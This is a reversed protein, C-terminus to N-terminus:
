NQCAFRYNASPHNFLKGFDSGRSCVMMMYDWNINKYPYGDRWGLEFQSPLPRGDAFRWSGTGEKTIGIFFNSETMNNTECYKRRESTTAIGNMLLDSGHDRCFERAAHWKSSRMKCSFVDFSPQLVGGRCKRLTDGEPEYFFPVCSFEVATNHAVRVSSINTTARDIVPLECSFAEEIVGSLHSIESAQGRVVGSLNRITEEQRAIVGNQSEIKGGMVAIEARHEDLVDSNRSIDASNRSVAEGHDTGKAGTSGRDGKEGRPGSKGRRIVDRAAPPSLPQGHDCTTTCVQCSAPKLLYILFFILLKMDHFTFYL